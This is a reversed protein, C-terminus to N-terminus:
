QGGTTYSTKIPKNKKICESLTSQPMQLAIYSTIFKGQRHKLLWRACKRAFQVNGHDVDLYSMIEDARRLSRVSMGNRVLQELMDLGFRRALSTFNSNARVTVAQPNSLWVELNQTGSLKASTSNIEAYMTDRDSDQAVILVPIEEWGLNTAAQLRRHGDVVELSKTIAIPYILGVRAISKELSRFAANEVRSKPNYSAPHLDSIKM